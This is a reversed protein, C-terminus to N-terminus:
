LLCDVQSETSCAGESVPNDYHLLKKLAQLVFTLNKLIKLIQYIIECSISRYTAGLYMLSKISSVLLSCRIEKRLELSLMISIWAIFYNDSPLSKIIM